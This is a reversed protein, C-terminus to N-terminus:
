IKLSERLLLSGSLLEYVAIWDNSAPDPRNARLLSLPIAPWTMLSLIWAWLQGVEKPTLQVLSSLLPKDFSGHKDVNIM